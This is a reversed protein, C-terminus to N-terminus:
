AKRSKVPPMDRTAAPFTARYTRDLNRLLTIALASRDLPGGLIIALSAAQERLPPPFDRREHNVNLGIGVIALHPGKDQARMEVLVGAIKRDGVFVDNPPKITTKHSCRQEITAAVARAAWQTLQPSDILNINPRLLVSFWLGQYAASEWMKGHQGRGATQHEAFLVLGELADGKALQWVSDNTSTTEERVIIERGILVDDGLAARIQRVDLRDAARASLM